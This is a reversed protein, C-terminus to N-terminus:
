QIQAGTGGDSPDLFPRLDIGERRTNPSRTEMGPLSPIDIGFERGLVDLLRSGDRGTFTNVASTDQGSNAVALNEFVRDRTVIPDQGQPVTFVIRCSSNRETTACVIDYGNEIGTQLELLGDPRYEELRRSIEVCRREESWGGGMAQPTAWPYFAGPQSEPQYMVTYAGNQFQCVFRTSTEAPLSDPSTLDGQSNQKVGNVSTPSLARAPILQSFVGFILAAAAVVRTAECGQHFFRHISSKSSQQTM